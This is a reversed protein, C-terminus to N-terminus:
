RQSANPGKHQNNLIDQYLEIIIKNRAKLLCIAKNQSYIEQEQKIILNDNKFREKLLKRLKLVSECAENRCANNENLEFGCYSCKGM